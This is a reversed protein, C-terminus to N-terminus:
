QYYFQFTMDQSQGLVAIMDDTWDGYPATMTIATLCSQKGQETSTSEVEIISTVKGHFDMTFKVTVTTGSPPETRSDILIRDWQVQIAEMMKHLYAGYNSWKADVAVPGINSTGFQNDEFIAPRTHVQELVPRPRPHNRDITPMQAVTGTASGDKVGDVKTDSVKTVNPNTGVNSGYGDEGPKMKDFGPLTDQALRAQTATKAASAKSVPEPPPSDVPKALSGSVTQNSQFNKKGDLKPKDNHQDLQPKEQALVQNQSSFNTTHEPVKDPANPNAEIYKTPTPPPPPKRFQAFAEPSIEINFQRPTAAKRAAVHTNDTRLLFPGLLFLLAHVVIVAAVGVLVSRSEPDSWAQTVLRRLSATPSPATLAHSM